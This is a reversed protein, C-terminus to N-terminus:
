GGYNAMSGASSEAQDFTDFIIAPGDGVDGGFGAAGARSQRLPCVVVAVFTEVCKLVAGTSRGPTRRPQRDLDEVKDVRPPSVAFPRGAPDGELEGGAAM